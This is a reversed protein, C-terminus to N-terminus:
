YQRIDEATKSFVFDEKENLYKKYTKNFSEFTANISDELGTIYVTVISKNKVSISGSATSFIEFTNDKNKIETYLIKEDPIYGISEIKKGNSTDVMPKDKVEITKANANYSYTFYTYNGDIDYALLCFNTAFPAQAEELMTELDSDYLSDNSVLLAFKQYGKEKACDVLYGISGQPNESIKQAMDTLNTMNPSYYQLQESEKETTEQTVEQTQTELKKEVESTQNALDQKETTKNDTSSATFTKTDSTDKNGFSVSCGTTLCGILCMLIIVKKKM